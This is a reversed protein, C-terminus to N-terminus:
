YSSPAGDSPQPRLRESVKRAEAAASLVGATETGTPVRNLVDFLGNFRDIQRRLSKIDFSSRDRLELARQTHELAKGPYNQARLVYLEVLSTHGWLKRQLHEGRVDRESLLRALTWRDLWEENGHIERTQDLALDLTLCQVLAWTNDRSADFSRAYQARSRGLHERAQRYYDPLTEPTPPNGEPQRVIVSSLVFEDHARVYLEARRKETAGFLGHIEGADEPASELLQQLHLEARSLKQLPGALLFALPDERGILRQRIKNSWDDDKKRTIRSVIKDASGLAANIARKGQHFALRNSQEAIDPPLAAYAVLSAWDHNDSFQMRLRRRLDDLICRPDQGWLLGRYLTSVFEISGKVSLPFQSAVVLPIGKLHLEHAVSAGAGVVSGVNGSDCAALSVAIPNALTQRRGHIHPRLATALREGDVVDLKQPDISDHLAVGFRRDDGLRLHTGHALIHVHTYAGTACLETLARLNAHPLVTLHEAVAARLEERSALEDGSSVKVWPEIAKRLALLHAEYPVESGPSAFAFLVKPDSRWTLPISSARRIERTICLPVETQLSLAQGAAPFGRPAWALEFPLLALENANMVLRLHVTGTRAQAETTDRTGGHCRALEAVFGPIQELVKGLTSAVDALQLEKTRDSDAYTLASTRSLWQAHEFPLEVAVAAHEGCLGFYRTLPSLLQNQPPGDRLIELVIDRM